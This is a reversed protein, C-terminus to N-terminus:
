TVASPNQRTQELRSLTVYIGVSLALLVGVAVYDVHALMRLPAIGWVLTSYIFQIVGLGAAVRPKWAMLAGYGGVLIALLAGYPLHHLFMPSLFTALVLALSGIGLAALNAGNLQAETRKRHGLIILCAAFVSIVILLNGVSMYYFDLDRLFDIPSTNVDPKADGITFLTFHKTPGFMTQASEAKKEILSGFTMDRYAQAVTDVVGREPQDFGFTGALAYKTLPNNSPYVFTQFATWALLLTAGPVVGAILARFDRRLETLLFALAAVMVFFGISMHCLAGMAALLGFLVSRTLLRTETGAERYRTRFILATACLAYAGGLMKPWGYITNFIMFPVLAIVTVALCTRAVDLKVVERLVYYAVPAWLASLGIAYANFALPGVHTGDNTGQMAAFVEAVLLHFGAMLPPRDTPSWNGGFVEKLDLKKRLAEAFQWPLENDSSWQAPIFRANADWHGVGASACASLMFFFLAVGLWILAAPKLEHATRLFGSRDSLFAALCMAPGLLAAVWGFAAPLPLVYANFVIFAVLGAAILASPLGLADAFIRRIFTAGGLGISGVILMGIVLYPLLGIWTSKWFSWADIAHPTGVGAMASRSLSEFEIRAYGSCWRVPIEFGADSINNNGNGSAILLRNAHDACKLFSRISGDPANHQGTTPIVVYRSTQFWPSVAAGPAVGMQPTWSRFMSAGPGNAISKRSSNGLGTVDRIQFLGINGSVEWEGTVLSKAQAEPKLAIFLGALFVLLALIGAAAMFYRTTSNRREVPPAAGSTTVEPSQEITM